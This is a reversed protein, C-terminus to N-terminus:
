KLRTIRGGCAPLAWIDICLYGELLIALQQKYTKLPWV